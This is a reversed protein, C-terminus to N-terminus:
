ELLVSTHELHKGPFVGINEPDEDSINSPDLLGEFKRADGSKLHYCARLTQSALIEGGHSGGRSCHQRRGSKVLVDDEIRHEVLILLAQAALMMYEKNRRRSTNPMQWDGDMLNAAPTDGCFGSVGRVKSVAGTM